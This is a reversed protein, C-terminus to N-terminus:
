ELVDKLVMKEYAAGTDIEKVWNGDGMNSMLTESVKDFDYSGKIVNALMVWIHGMLLEMRNIDKSKRIHKKTLTTFLEYKRHLGNLDGEQPLKLYRELLQEHSIEQDEMVRRISSQLNKDKVILRMRDDPRKMPEGNQETTTGIQYRKNIKLHYWSPLQYWSKTVM